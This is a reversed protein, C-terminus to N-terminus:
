RLGLKATCAPWQGWGSRALLIEARAIQEERSNQNPYGTGGVGRWTALTFQLGGYYGNGTNIAWNGGSECAALQDWASGSAVAPASNQIQQTSASNYTVLRAPQQVIIPTTPLQRDPLVEDATPIRVVDGPNIIDPNVISENAQFLKVYTTEHSEAIASLTDGTQVTVTVKVSAPAVPQAPAPAVSKVVQKNSSTTEALKQNFQKTTTALHAVDSAVFVQASARPAHMYSVSATIIAAIFLGKKM